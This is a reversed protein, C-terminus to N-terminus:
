EKYLMYLDIILDIIKSLDLNLFINMFNSNDTNKM